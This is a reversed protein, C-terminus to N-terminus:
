LLEKKALISRAIVTISLIFIWVILLPKLFVPFLLFLTYAIGTEGGEALGSAFKLGRNDQSPIKKEKELSGLALASTICLVYLFLIILYLFSHQPFYIYLAIIIISYSAMDSVIDLYAGFLSSQGTARAYIGDTGDFIRGLWWILIAAIFYGKIILFASLVALLFAGFTIQNPTLGLQTYFYILKKSYAPLISRFKQDIM